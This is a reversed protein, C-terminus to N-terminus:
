IAIDPSRGDRGRAPTSRPRSSSKSDASRAGFDGLAQDCIKDWTTPHAASNLSQRLLHAIPAVPHEAPMDAPLRDLASWASAGDGACWAALAALCAPEARVEAPAHKTLDKWLPLWAQATQTRIEGAMQLFLGTDVELNVLLRAADGVDLREHDVQYQEVVAHCYRRELDRNSQERGSRAELLSEAILDTNGAFEAALEERSGYPLRRGALAAEAGILDKAADTRAGTTNTTFDIWTTEAAALRRVVTVDHEQFAKELAASFSATTEPAQSFCVALVAVQGWRGSGYTETLAEIVDHADTASAPLDLRAVPARGGGVPVIVLSERPEFGMLHPVAAIVEDNSQITLQM